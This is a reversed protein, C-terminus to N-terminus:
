SAARRIFDTIEQGLKQPQELHIMHACGDFVTHGAGKIMAALAEGQAPRIVKNAAGSWVHVPVDVRHLWNSLKPNCLRPSWSYKAAAGRNRDWIADREPDDKWGSFWKAGDGNAFLMKVLDEESCVFMDGRPVDKVRLGASNALAMSRFHHGPYVAMELALWGGICHGAVHVSDLGLADLFDFTFLALDRVTEATDSVDSLGFGPLDPAIVDFNEALADILPERTDLGLAGHLFLLPEGKGARRLNVKCGRVDVVSTGTV